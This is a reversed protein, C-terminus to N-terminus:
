NIIEWQFNTPTSYLQNEEDSISNKEDSISNEEDSTNNEICPSKNRISLCQYNNVVPKQINKRPFNNYNKNVCSLIKDKYFLSGAITLGVLGVILIEVFM